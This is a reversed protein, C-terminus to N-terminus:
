IALESSSRYKPDFPMPSSPISATAFESPTCTSILPSYKPSIREFLCASLGNTVDQWPQYVQLAQTEAGGEEAGGEEAVVLGGAQEAHRGVGQLSEVEVGGGECVFAEEAQGYDESGAFEAKRGEM